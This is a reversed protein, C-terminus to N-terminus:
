PRMFHFEQDDELNELEFAVESRIDDASRHQRLQELVERLMAKGLREEDVGAAEAERIAAEIHTRAISYPSSM